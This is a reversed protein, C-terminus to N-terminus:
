RQERAGRRRALAALEFPGRTTMRRGPVALWPVTGSAIVGDGTADTVIRTAVKLAAMNEMAGTTGGGACSATEGRTRAPASRRGFFPMRFVCLGGDGLLCSLTDM